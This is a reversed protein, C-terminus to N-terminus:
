ISNQVASADTLPNQKRHEVMKMQQVMKTKASYQCEGRDNTDTGKSKSLQVTLYM